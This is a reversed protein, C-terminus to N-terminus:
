EAKGVTFAVATINDGDLRSRQVLRLLMLELWDAAGQSKALDIGMETDWVYQWFGDSCVLVGDGDALSVEGIHPTVAVDDGLAATLHSRGDYLRIGEYDVDGREFAAYGASDDRSVEVGQARTFRYIRSDGVNGWTLFGGAIVAVAATARAQKLPPSAAQADVLALHAGSVAQGIADRVRASGAEGQEDGTVLGHAIADACIEAAAAGEAMGGLGDCVIAFWRGAGVDLRLADQNEVHGGPHTFWAHDLHWRTSAVPTGTVTTDGGRREPAPRGGGDDRITTSV